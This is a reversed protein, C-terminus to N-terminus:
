LTHSHKQLSNSLVTMFDNSSKPQHSFPGKNFVAMATIAKNVVKFAWTEDDETM